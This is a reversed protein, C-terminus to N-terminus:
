GYWLPPCVSGFVPDVIITAVPNAMDGKALGAFLLGFMAKMHASLMEAIHPTNGSVSRVVGVHIAQNSSFILEGGVAITATALEVKRETRKTNM